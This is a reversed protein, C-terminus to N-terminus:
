TPTILSSKILGCGESSALLAVGWFTNFFFCSLCPSWICGLHAWFLYLWYLMRSWKTWCTEIGVIGTLFRYHWFIICLPLVDFLDPSVCRLFDKVPSLSLTLSNKFIGHPFQFSLFQFSFFAPNFPLRALVTFAFVRSYSYYVVVSFSIWFAEPFVRYLRSWVSLMDFCVLSAAHCPLKLSSYIIVLLEGVPELPCVLWHLVLVPVRECCCLFLKHSSYIM